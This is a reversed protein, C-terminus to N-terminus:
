VFAKLKLPDGTVKGIIDRDNFIVFLAPQAEEAKEGKAPPVEVEWRDGGFKPVRVFDGVEVYSGEPWPTGTERHRFALQGLAVVKAVQTNWKETQMSDDILHIGGKTINKARRFQVLVRSGLPIVGADVEPFAEAISQHALQVNLFSVSTGSM